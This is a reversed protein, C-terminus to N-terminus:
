HPNTVAPNAAPYSEVVWYGDGDGTAGFGFCELTCQQTASGLFPAGGFAFIGGDGAELWYGPSRAPASAAPGGAVLLATAMLTLLGAIRFLRMM